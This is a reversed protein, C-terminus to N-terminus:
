RQLCARLRSDTELFNAARERAELDSLVTVFNKKIGPAAELAEIWEKKSMPNEETYHWFGTQQFLSELRSTDQGQVLAMWYTALGVQLGHLRPEVSLADLAHSILHESGSAPRSSGAIEMAVGNLLLAQALLKIGQNDRKPHGLFQFVSADSLLASLDDFTTGDHHFAIKWDQVATWKAVLDGVGSLWLAKPAQRVVELDIIVGMPLRAKFSKRRGRDSLSSQPSCFGDNSLSTPVAIYPRDLRFAIRKAVDLAKGGGLGVVVEFRDSYEAIKQEVTETENDEVAEILEYPFGSFVISTIQEPLGASYLLVVKEFSERGLYIPLRALAGEKLRVLHPVAIKRL